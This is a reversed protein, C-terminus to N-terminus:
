TQILWFILFSFLVILLITIITTKSKFLSQTVTNNKNLTQITDFIHEMDEQNLGKEKTTDKGEKNVNHMQITHVQKFYSLTDYYKSKGHPEDDDIFIVHGYEDEKLLKQRIFDEKNRYLQTDAKMEPDSTKWFKEYGATGHIYVFTEFPIEAYELAKKIEDLVGHSSIAIDVNMKKLANFFVSLKEIRDKGGFIFDVIWEKTFTVRESPAQRLNKFLHEKTLTEDFDIVLIVKSSHM